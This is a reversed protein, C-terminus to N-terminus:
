QNLSATHFQCALSINFLMISRQWLSIIKNQWRFPVLHSPVPNPFRLPGTDHSKQGETIKMFVDMRPRQNLPSFGKQINIWIRSSINLAHPTMPVAHVIFNELLKL